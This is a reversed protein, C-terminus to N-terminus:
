NEFSLKEYKENHKMLHVILLKKMEPGTFDEVPDYNQNAYTALMEYFADYENGPQIHVKAPSYCLNGM